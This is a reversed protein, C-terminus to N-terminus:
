GDHLEGCGREDILECLVKRVWILGERHQKHIYRRGDEDPEPEPSIDEDGDWEKLRYQELPVDHKVKNRIENLLEWIILAYTGGNVAAKHELEEEPLQFKLIAEPM